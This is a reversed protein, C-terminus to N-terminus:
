REIYATIEKIIMDVTEDLSYEGYYYHGINLRVIEIVKPDRIYRRMPANMLEEYEDILADKNGAYFDVWNYEEDMATICVDMYEQLEDNLSRFAEKNLPIYNAAGYFDTYGSRSLDIQIDESLFYKIVEWAKEKQTSSASIGVSMDSQM